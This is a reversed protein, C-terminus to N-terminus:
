HQWHHQIAIVCSFANCFVQDMQLGQLSLLNSAEYFFIRIVFWENGDYNKAYDEMALKLFEHNKKIHFFSSEPDITDSPNNVLASYKTLPQFNKLAIHDLDTYFGGYKYVLVFRLADSLHSYRYYENKRTLRDNTWWKKLPTGEFVEGINMLSWKINPYQKLLLTENIKAKLSLIHLVAEPNHLANSEISCM